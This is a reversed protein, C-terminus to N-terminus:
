DLPVDSPFIAWANFYWMTYIDEVGIQVTIIYHSKLQEEGIGDLTAKLVDGVDLLRQGDAKGSVM